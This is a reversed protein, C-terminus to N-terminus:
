AKIAGGTLGTVFYKQFIAFSTVVPVISIFAAASLLEWQVRGTDLVFRYLSITYPRVGSSSTLILPGTFDNWVARFIMVAVAAAGPAALPVIIRLMIKLSSCGDMVAAEELEVPITDIYGKMLWTCFSSGGIGHLLIIAWYTDYLHYTSFLRFLPILGVIGTSMNIFLIFLLLANRGRFRYRSFGYGALFSIVTSICVAGLAMIISNLYPRFGGFLRNKTALEVLNDFTFSRPFITPPFTLAEGASKFTSTFVWYLPLVTIATYLILVFYVPTRKTIRAFARGM